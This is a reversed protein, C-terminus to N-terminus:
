ERTLTLSPQLTKQEQNALWKTIICKVCLQRIVGSFTNYLTEQCHIKKQLKLHYYSSVSNSCRDSVPEMETAPGSHHSNGYAINNWKIGAM